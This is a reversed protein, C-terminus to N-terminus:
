PFLLSSCTPHGRLLGGGWGGQAVLQLNRSQMGEEFKQPFLSNPELLGWPNSSCSACEEGEAAWGEAAGEARPQTPDPSPPAPTSPAPWVAGKLQAAWAYPLRPCEPESRDKFSLLHPLALLTPVPLPPSPASSTMELARANASSLLWGTLPALSLSSCMKICLHQLPEPRACVGAGEGAVAALAAAVAGPCCRAASPAPASLRGAWLAPPRALESEDGRAADVQGLWCGEKVWTPAM